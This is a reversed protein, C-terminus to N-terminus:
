ATGRHQECLPIKSGDPRRRFTVAPKHCLMTCANDVVMEKCRGLEQHLVLDVEALVAGRACGERHDAPEGCEVCPGDPVLPRLRELLYLFQDSRLMMM